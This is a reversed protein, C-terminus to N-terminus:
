ELPVARLNRIVTNTRGTTSGTSTIRLPYPLVAEGLPFGFELGGEAGAMVDCGLATTPTLELVYVVVVGAVALSLWACIWVLILLGAPVAVVLVAVRIILAAIVIAGCTDDPGGGFPISDDPGITILSCSPVTIWLNLIVEEVPSQTWILLEVLMVM